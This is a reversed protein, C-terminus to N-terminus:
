VNDIVKEFFIFDIETRKDRFCCCFGFEELFRAASTSDEGDFFSSGIVVSKTCEGDLCNKCERCVSNM